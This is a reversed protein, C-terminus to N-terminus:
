KTKKTYVMLDNLNNNEEQDYRIFRHVKHYSVEALKKNKKNLRLTIAKITMGKGIMNKIDERYKELLVTSDKGLYQSEPIKKVNYSVKAERDKIKLVPKRGKFVNVKEFLKDLPDNKLGAEYGEQYILKFDELSILELIRKFRPNAKKM